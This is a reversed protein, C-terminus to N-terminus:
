SLPPFDPHREDLSPRILECSARQTLHPHICPTAVFSLYTGKRPACRLLRRVQRMGTEFPSSINDPQTLHPTQQAASM